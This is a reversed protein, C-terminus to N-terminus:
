LYGDSHLSNKQIEICTDLLMEGTIPVVNDKLRRSEEM